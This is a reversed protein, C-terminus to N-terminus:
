GTNETLKQATLAPPHNPQTSLYMGCFSGLVVLWAQLGGDPYSTVENDISETTNSEDKTDTLM